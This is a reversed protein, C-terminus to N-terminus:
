RGDLRSDDRRRYLFIKCKPFSREASADMNFYKANREIREDNKTRHHLVHEESPSLLFLFFIARGGARTRTLTTRKYRIAMEVQSSNALAHALIKTHTNIKWYFHVRERERERVANTACNALYTPTEGIDAQIFNHTSACRM